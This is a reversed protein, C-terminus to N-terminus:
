NVIILNELDFHIAMMMMMMTEIITTLLVVVVVLNVVVIGVVTAMHSMNFLM